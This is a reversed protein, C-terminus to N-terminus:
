SMTIIHGRLVRVKYECGCDLCTFGIVRYPENGVMSKDFVYDYKLLFNSRCGCSVCYGGEFVTLLWETKDSGWCDYTEVDVGVSVSKSVLAM